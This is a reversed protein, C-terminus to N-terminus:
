PSPSPILDLIGKSIKEVKFWICHSIKQKIEKEQVEKTELETSENLIVEKM